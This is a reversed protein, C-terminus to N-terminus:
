TYPSKNKIPFDFTHSLSNKNVLSNNLPGFPFGHSHEINQTLWTKM